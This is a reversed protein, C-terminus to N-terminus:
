ISFAEAPKLTTASMWRAGVLSAAIAAILFVPEAAFAVRIDAADTLAGFVLPSLLMSIGTAMTLRSGGASSYPAAAALGLSTTLPYFNSIGLGALFLGIVSVALMPSLWHVLTGAMALAFTCQLLRIPSRRRVLRSGIIRGVLMGWFLLSLAIGATSEQMGRWELLPVAGFILGFEFSDTFVLTVFFAWFRRDLKPKEADISHNAHYAPEPVPTDRFFIILLVLLTIPLLAAGSWGYGLRQSVGVCVPVICGLLGSVVSSESLAVARHESQYDSLAAPTLSIVLSGIAGILVLMIALTLWVTTAMALLVMGIAVAVMGAWIAARRGTRHALREAFLGMGMLGIAMASVHANALTASIHLDKRMAPVVAGMAHFVARHMGTTALLFM